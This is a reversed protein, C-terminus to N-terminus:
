CSSRVATVTPQDTCMRCCCVSDGASYYPRWDNEATCNDYTTVKIRDFESTELGRVPGAFGSDFPGRLAPPQTNSPSLSCYGHM